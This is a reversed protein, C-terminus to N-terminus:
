FVQLYLLIVGLELLVGLSKCVLTSSNFILYVFYKMPRIMCYVMFELNLLVQTTLCDSLFGSASLSYLAHGLDSSAALDGSDPAREVTDRTPKGGGGEIYKWKFFLLIFFVWHTLSSVWFLKQPLLLLLQNVKKTTDKALFAKPLLFLLTGNVLSDAVFM